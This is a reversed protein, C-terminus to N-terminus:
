VATESGEATSLVTAVLKASHEAIVGADFERGLFEDFLARQLCAGLLLEAATEADLRASVRGLAMEGRLYEALKTNARQPGSGTQEAWLRQRALLHPDGFIAALMPMAHRYFPVAAEAVRQLNDHVSGQGVRQPLDKLMGIFMPQREALASTLLDEKSKFHRYLAAETLGAARAIERTTVATLGSSRMLEATVDLIRDRTLAATARPM